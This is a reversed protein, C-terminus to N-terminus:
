FGIIFQTKGRELRNEHTSDPGVLNERKDALTIEKKESQIDHNNDTKARHSETGKTVKDFAFGCRM